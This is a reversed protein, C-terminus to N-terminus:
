LLLYANLIDTDQPRSSLGLSDSRGGTVWLGAINLECYGASEVETMGAMQKHSLLPSFVVPVETGAHKIIIYKSRVHKRASTTKTKPPVTNMKSNGLEECQITYIEFGDV